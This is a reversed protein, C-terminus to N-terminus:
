ISIHLVEVFRFRVDINVIKVNLSIQVSGAHYNAFCASVKDLRNHIIIVHQKIVVKKQSKYEERLM